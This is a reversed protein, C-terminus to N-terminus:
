KDKIRDIIKKETNKKAKKAIDRLEFWDVHISMCTDAKEEILRIFENFVEM